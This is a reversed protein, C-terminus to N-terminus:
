LVVCGCVVSVVAGDTALDFVCLPLVSQTFYDYISGSLTVCLSIVAVLPFPYYVLECVHM